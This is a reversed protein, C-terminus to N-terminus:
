LVRLASLFLLCNYIIIYKVKKKFLFVATGDCIQKEIYM